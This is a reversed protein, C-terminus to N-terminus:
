SPSGFGRPLPASFFTKCYSHCFYLPKEPAAEFGPQPLPFTLSYSYDTTGAPAEEIRAVDEATVTHQWVHNARVCLPETSLAIVNTQFVVTRGDDEIVDAPPKQGRVVLTNADRLFAAPRGFFHSSQHGVCTCTLRRLADNKPHPGRSCCWGPVSGIAPTPLEASVLMDNYTQYGLVCNDVTASLPAVLLAFISAVVPYM